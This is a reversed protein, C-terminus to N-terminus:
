SCGLATWGASLHSKNDNISWFLGAFALFWVLVSLDVHIVLAKHFFDIWPFLPSLQPTRSLVLLISFIGSALLAFLGLWLWAIALKRRGDTPITLTYDDITTDSNNFM